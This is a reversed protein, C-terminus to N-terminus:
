IKNKKPFYLNDVKLVKENEYLKKAVYGIRLRSEGLITEMEIVRIGGPNRSICDLVKEELTMTNKREAPIDKDKPTIMKESTRLIKEKKIQPNSDQAIESQSEVISSQTEKKTKKRKKSVTKPVKEEKVVTKDAKNHQVMEGKVENWTASASFRDKSYLNLMEIADKRIDDVEKKLGKIESHIGKMMKDYQKLRNTEGGALEEALKQAMQQNATRTELLRNEFRQLLSKVYNVREVSTNGLKDRLKTAMDNHEREFNGLMDSMSDRLNSVQDNIHRIDSNINTMLDKFATIRNKEILALDGKLKEAMKQRNESFKQIKDFAASQIGDVEGHIAAITNQIKTMLDNYSSLRDQQWRNIEKHLSEADSKLTAVMRQRDRRFRDMTKRVENVLEENESIRQKFSALIEESLEKMESTLGM